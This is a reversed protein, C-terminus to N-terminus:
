QELKLETMKWRSELFEEDSIWCGFLWIDGNNQFVLDLDDLPLLRLGYLDVTGRNIFRIDSPLTAVDSIWVDGEGDVVLTEGDLHYSYGKYELYCILQGRTM